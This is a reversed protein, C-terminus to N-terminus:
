THNWPLQINFLLPGIVFRPPIGHSILHHNLKINGVQLFQYRTNSLYSRLLNIAKVDVGNFKLKSLLINHDLNDFVKSLDIYM